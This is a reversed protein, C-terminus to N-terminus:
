KSHRMKCGLNNGKKQAYITKKTCFLNFYELYM